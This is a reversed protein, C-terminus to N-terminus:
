LDKNCDAQILEFDRSLCLQNIREYIRICAWADIAAYQQQSKSLFDAEWNSLQQGKSIKEGFLNAYIKQLSLDEIGLKKVEQQLEVFDGIQFDGSHHLNLFDDHLSLGIKLVSKDELFKVVPPPFGMRNLRFLFCTDHTSVQLLAVKNSKGKRFTPKTETDVGLITQKLLYEVAREAESETTLTFIRGEFTVRPLTQILQKDYKEYIQQM